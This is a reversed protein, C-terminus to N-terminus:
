WFNQGKHLTVFVGSKNDKIRLLAAKKKCNNQPKDESKWVQAPSFAYPYL